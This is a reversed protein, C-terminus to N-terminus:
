NKKNLRVLFAWKYAFLTFKKNWEEFQAANM